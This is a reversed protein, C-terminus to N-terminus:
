GAQSAPKGGAKPPPSPRLESLTQLLLDLDYPKHLVATVGIDSPTANMAWTRGSQVVVPARAALAQLLAREEEPVERAHSSMGDVLLADWPEADALRQAARLDAVRVVAHGELALFELLVQALTHDNEALLIRMPRGPAQIPSTRGTM